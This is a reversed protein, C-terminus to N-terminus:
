PSDIYTQKIEQWTRKDVEGIDNKLEGSKWKQYIERIEDFAEPNYRAYLYADKESMGKERMLYPVLKLAQKHYSAQTSFKVIRNMISEASWRSPKTAIRIREFEESFQAFDHPAINKINYKDILENARTVYEHFKVEIPTSMSIRNM